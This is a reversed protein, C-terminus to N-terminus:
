IIGNRVPYNGLKMFKWQCHNIATNYGMYNDMITGSDNDYIWDM